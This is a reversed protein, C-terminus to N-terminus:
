WPMSQDKSKSFIQWYWFTKAKPCMENFYAHMKNSVVNVNDSRWGQTFFPFNLFFFASKNQVFLESIKLLCLLKLIKQKSFIQLHYLVTATFRQSNASALPAHFQTSLNITWAFWECTRSIEGVDPAFLIDRARLCNFNWMRGPFHKRSLM